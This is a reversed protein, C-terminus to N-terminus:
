RERERDGRRGAANNIRRGEWVCAHQVLALSTSRIQEQGRVCAAMTLLWWIGGRPPRPIRRLPPPARRVFVCARVRTLQELCFSVFHDHRPILPPTVHRASASQRRCIHRSSLCMQWVPIHYQLRPPAVSQCICSMIEFSGYLHSLACAIIQM